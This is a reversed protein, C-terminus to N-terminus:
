RGAVNKEYTVSSRLRDEPIDYYTRLVAESDDSLRYDAQELAGRAKHNAEYTGVIIRDVGSIRSEAYQRLLSGVGQRQWRPLVYAHRLLAVDSVYEAGMVGVLGEDAFAGYWTMRIAEADWDDATIEPGASEEPPLIERYWEAATNIVAVAQERDTPELTRLDLDHAMVLLAGGSPASGTLIASSATTNWDVVSAQSGVLTRWWSM